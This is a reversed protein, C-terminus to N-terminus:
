PRSPFLQFTYPLLLWKGKLLCLWGIVLPQVPRGGLLTLAAPAAYRCATEIASAGFIFSLHAILENDSVIQTASAVAIAAALWDQVGVCTSRPRVM